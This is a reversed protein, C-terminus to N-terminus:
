FSGPDVSGPSAALRRPAAIEGLALYLRYRAIELYEHLAADALVFNHPRPLLSQRACLYDARVQTAAVGFHAFYLRSRRLHLGSTVLAVHDPCFHQLVDSAYRAHQWTGTSVPEILVDDGALGLALLARRHVLAEAVGTDGTDGGSLLIKCQGGARRCDRQLAAAEVLRAYSSLGPEISGTTAVRELGGGLVVIANRQGWAHAPKVDFGAQLDQLLWAPVWGCGVALFLGAALACLAQGLRRRRSARCSTGLVFLVLTLALTM